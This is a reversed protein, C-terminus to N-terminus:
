WPLVRGDYNFFGGSDGPKLSALKKRLGAVSHEPSILADPGGMDTKVWGPHMVVVIIGRPKWDIALSRMAANLAAKSSRYSYSGGSTNDAISGMRSTLSLVTRGRGAELNLLFAEAIRMPAITNIRLTKLWDEPDTSDDSGGVGANNVLIDIPEGKLAAALRAIQEEDTVELRHVRVDGRISKLEHARDPNRACALVRWGDAAYQRVFELGIGRNAGTVLVTPM